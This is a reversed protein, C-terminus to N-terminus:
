SLLLALPDTERFCRFKFVISSWVFPDKQCKEQQKRPKKEETMSKM